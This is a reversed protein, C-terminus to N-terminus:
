STCKMMENMRKQGLAITKKVFEHLVQRFAQIRYGQIRM